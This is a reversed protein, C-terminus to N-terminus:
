FAAKKTLTLSEYVSPWTLKMYEHHLKLAEEYPLERMQGFSYWKANEEISRWGITYRIYKDQTQVDTRKYFPEAGHLLKDNRFAVMDGAAGVVIQFDSENAPNIIKTGGKTANNLLTLVATTNPRIAKNILLTDDDNKKFDFYEGDFHTPLYTSNDRYRQINFLLRGRTLKALDEFRKQAIQIVSPLKNYMIQPLTLDSNKSSHQVLFAYSDRTARQDSFYAVHSKLNEDVYYKEILIETEKLLEKLQPENYLKRHVTIHDNLKFEGSFCKRQQLTLFRSQNQLLNGIKKIASNM